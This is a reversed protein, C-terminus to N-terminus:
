SRGLGPIPLSWRCNKSLACRRAWPPLAVANAHFQVLRCHLHFRRVVVERSSGRPCAVLYYPGRRDVRGERNRRQGRKLGSRMARYHALGCRLAITKELNDSKAVFGDAIDREREEKIFYRVEHGEKSVQWAIDGILGTLSNFLFKRKEM